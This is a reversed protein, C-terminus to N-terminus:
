ADATGSLFRRLCGLSREPEDGWIFHGGGDIVELEAHPIERQFRHAGALPAFADESGWLIQTPVGLKALRGEYPALKSFDGSRFMELAGARGERTSYAKWYEDIADDPFRGAARLMAAFGDRDLGEIVEEGSDSRLVEALGHWRGDPFFGTDSLLLGAIREPHDCAWRLGILGGWDHVVLVVRELDLADVFEGLTEVHREWTAPRDPPSDGYGLLDPAIGRRGCDSVVALAERWMYSSEPFGHLLLAPDLGPGVAGPGGGPLSERYALRGARKVQGNGV